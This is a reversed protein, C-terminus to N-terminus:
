YESLDKLKDVANNWVQRGFQGFVADPSYGAKAILDAVAKMEEKNRPLFVDEPYPNLEALRKATIELSKSAWSRDSDKEKETLESYPTAIQRRWNEKQHMVKYPDHADQEAELQELRELMYKTWHAWQKHELEALNELLNEM